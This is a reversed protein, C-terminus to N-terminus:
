CALSFSESLGSAINCARNPYLEQVPIAIHASRVPVPTANTIDGLAKRPVPAPTKCHSQNTINGLAKRASGAPLTPGNGRKKATKPNEADGHQKGTLKFASNEDQTSAKSFQLMVQQAKVKSPLVTSIRFATSIDKFSTCHEFTFDRM